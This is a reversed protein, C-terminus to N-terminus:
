PAAEITAPAVARGANIRGNGYLPDYGPTGLDDVAKFLRTRVLEFFAANTQTNTADYRAIVLAAVGAVYPSAMSTGSITSYDTGIASGAQPATSLINEGPATLDLRDGTNSFPSLSEWALYTGTSGVAIMGPTNAPSSVVTRGENGAASVVIVGAARAEDMADAWYAPVDGGSTGLSMNIVRVRAGTDPSPRFRVAHLFGQLIAFDSGGGQDNLVKIPMIPVGWAVGAVGLDNNGEAGVIGSVHTGHGDADHVDTDQVAGSFNAPAIVREVFEPHTVDLGTDLVAVITKSQSERPVLQWAQTTNARDARHAWQAKLQPDPRTFTFDFKRRIIDEGVRQVGAVGRVRAAAEVLGLGAPTGLKLLKAGRLTLGNQRTFGKLAANALLTAEDTGLALTVLLTGPVSVPSPRAVPQRPLYVPVPPEEAEQPVTTVGSPLRQASPAAQPAATPTAVGGGTPLASRCGALLLLMLVLATRPTLARSM